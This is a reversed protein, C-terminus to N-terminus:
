HRAPLAPDCLGLLLNGSLAAGAMVDALHGAQAAAISASIGVLFTRFIGPVALGQARGLWWPDTVRPPGAWFCLFRKVCLGAFRGYDAKIYSLAQQKRMAIYNLEGMTQFQHM